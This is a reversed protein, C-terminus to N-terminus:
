NRDDSAELMALKARIFASCLALPALEHRAQELQQPDNWVMADFRDLAIGDCMWHRAGFEREILGVIADLSGTWHPPLSGGMEGTPSVWMSPMLRDYDKPPPVTAWGLYRAMAADIGWDAGSAAEIRALLAQLEARTTM